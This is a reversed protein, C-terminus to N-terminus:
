MAISSGAPRATRCASSRGRRPRRCTGAATCRGADARSRRTPPRGDAPPLRRSGPWAASPGRPRRARGRRRRPAPRGLVAEVRDELAVLHGCSTGSYASAAPSGTCRGAAAPRPRATPWCWRPAARCRRRRPAPDVALRDGAPAVVQWRARRQDALHEGAALALRDPEDSAPQRNSARLAPRVPWFMARCARSARSKVRCPRTVITRMPGLFPAALLGAALSPRCLRPRDSRGWARQAAAKHRTRRGLPVPRPMPNSGLAASRTVYRPNGGIPRFPGHRHADAGQSSLLTGFTLAM